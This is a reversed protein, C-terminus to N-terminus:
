GFMNGVTECDDVLHAYLSTTALNSHGAADRVEVVSRGTHLAHSVFSHRGDHITVHRGLPKCASQFALRADKRAIPKGSKTSIFLDSLPSTQGFQARFELVEADVATAPGSLEETTVQRM